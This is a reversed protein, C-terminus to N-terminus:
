PVLRTKRGRAGLGARGVDVGSHAPPTQSGGPDKWRGAESPFLSGNNNHLQFYPNLSHACVRLRRGVTGDRFVCELSRIHSPSGVSGVCQLGCSAGLAGLVASVVGCGGLHGM